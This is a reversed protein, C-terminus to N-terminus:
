PSPGAAAPDIVLRAVKGRLSDPPLAYAEDNLYVDVAPANGLLIRFPPEGRLERRIGERQLGFLLRGNRDAIEVWSEGRFYLTLRQLAPAPTAPAAAAPARAAPEPEAMPAPPEAAPPEDVPAPAAALPSAPAPAPPVPRADAASPLPREAIAAGAAAPLEAPLAADGSSSAVTPPPERFVYAALGAFLAVVLLGLLWPQLSIDLRPRARPAAPRAVPVSVTERPEYDALLAEADLELLRAYARLHGRVFVPAGLSEFRGAELDALVAEDLHLAEAAQELSLARAARAERLRRGVGPREDPEPAAPTPERDPM